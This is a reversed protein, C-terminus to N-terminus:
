NAQEDDTAVGKNEEIAQEALALNRFQEWLGLMYGALELRECNDCSPPCACVLEGNIEISKV